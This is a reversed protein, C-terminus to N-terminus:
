HFLHVQVSLECVICNTSYFLLKSDVVPATRATTQATGIIAVMSSRQILCLGMSLPLILPSPTTQSLLASEAPNTLLADVIRFACSTTKTAVQPRLSIHRQCYIPSPTIGSPLNLLNDQKTRNLRM